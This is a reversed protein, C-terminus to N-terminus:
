KLYVSEFRLVLQEEDSYMVLIEGSINFMKARALADLFLKEQEMTEMCAMMTSALLGFQLQGERQEYGGMFRNCGSFGSM